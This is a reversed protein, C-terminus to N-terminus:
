NGAVVIHSVVMELPIYHGRRAYFHAHLYCEHMSYIIKKFFVFLLIRVIVIACSPMIEM